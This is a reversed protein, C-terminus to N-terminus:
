VVKTIYSTSYCWIINLDFASNVPIAFFLGWKYAAYYAIYIECPQTLGRESIRGLAEGALAEGINEEQEPM